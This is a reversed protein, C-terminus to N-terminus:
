MRSLYDAFASKLGEALTIKHRYGLGHLRSCDLLKRPTGDPMEPNFRLEGKYGIVDKIMAAVQGISVEDGSGINIHANRYEGSDDDMDWADVNEMVFCSADAMDNVHMFERLPKGTGWLSLITHGDSKEIGYKKLCAIYDGDECTGKLNKAIGKMNNDDLLKALHIKRILAPLVHSGKLDYNDNYGYLNTPMVSIFNCGHQLYYSECMKIGAIKSIAYPENTYELEATLLESEAIPQHANKPYICSSGLFLMKKVGLEYSYQIINNQMRLNEYIFDARFTNNAYIGGVKAACDFVFDPRVKKFLNHAQVQNTLDTKYMRIVGSQVLSSYDKVYNKFVASPKRGYYTGAINTYGRNVLERLIASGVLGTAGAVLICDDKKM